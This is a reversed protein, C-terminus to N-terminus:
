IGRTIPLKNCLLRLEQALCGLTTWKPRQFRHWKSGKEPAPSRGGSRIKLKLAFGRLIPTQSALAHAVPGLSDKETESIPAMKFGTRPRPEARRGGDEAGPNETRPRLGTFKAGAESRRPGVAGYFRPRQTGTLQAGALQAGAMLFRSLAPTRRSAIGCLAQWQPLHRLSGPGPGRKSAFDRAGDIGPSL